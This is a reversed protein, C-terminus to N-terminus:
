RLGLIRNKYEQPTEERKEDRAGAPSNGGLERLAERRAILEEEKRLLEKKESIAKELLEREQRAEEIISKKVNDVIPTKGETSSTVSSAPLVVDDNKEDNTM